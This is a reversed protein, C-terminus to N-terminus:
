WANYKSVPRIPESMYDCSNGEPVNRFSVTQFTEGDFTLFIGFAAECLRMAKDLMADFVPALDGPSSNIVGLVEATATQQALAESLQVTREDLRQQLAANARRLDAVEDDLRATM